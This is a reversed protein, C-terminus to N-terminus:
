TQIGILNFLLFSPWTLIAGVALATIQCRWAITRWSTPLPTRWAPVAGIVFGVGCLGIVNILIVVLILRGTEGNAADLFAIDSMSNYGAFAAVPLLLFTAAILLGNVRLWLSVRTSRFWWPSAFASLQVLLGALLLLSAVKPNGLGSVQRWASSPGTHLYIENSGTPKRFIFRNGGSADYVGPGVRTLTEDRFRLKNSGAREFELVSDAAIFAAFSRRSRRETWYSGAIDALDDVASNKLQDSVPPHQREGVLAELFARAPQNNKFVSQDGAGAPPVLRGRGILWNLVDGLSPQYSGRLVSVVLAANSDPFVGLESQTGPLGCNHSVYRESGYRAPYFHLGIGDGAVHNRFNVQQMEQRSKASLVTAHTTASVDAHMAAYRLMDEPTSIIGGSAATLPHKPFFPVAQLEGNPFRGYPQALRDPVATVHHLLTHGMNLPAVIQDKVYDALPQGTVDEILVSELAVGLNAYQGITGPVREINEHFMEAVIEA